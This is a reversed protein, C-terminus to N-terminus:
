RRSASQGLLDILADNAQRLAHKGSVSTALIRRCGTLEVYVESGGAVPALLAFRSAPTNCRKAPGAARISREVAVWRDTALPGGYTFDGAPKGNGQESAPVRYVCLRVQAARAPLAGMSAAPAGSGNNTEVWVMDAWTQSCGAAAAEASELQRIPRASVPKLRLAAIADRVEIRPKGCADSPVGPRVWRGQADLLALWPVMPLDTTCPGDAPPEDPLRLAEVLAAVEDARSETAALDEGGGPRQRPGVGCLVAAVAPFDDGLLPLGLADNGAALHPLRDAPGPAQIPCSRWVPQVPPTGPARQDNTQGDSTRGDGPQATHTSPGACGALLVAVVVALGCASSMRGM